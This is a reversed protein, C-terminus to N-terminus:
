LWLFDISQTDGSVYLLFKSLRNQEFPNNLHLPSLPDRSMQALMSPLHDIRAPEENSCWWLLFVVM